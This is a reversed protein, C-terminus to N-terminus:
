VKENDLGLGLKQAFVSVAKSRISEVGYKATRQNLIFETETESLLQGHSVFGFKRTIFFGESLQDIMTEELPYLCWGGVGFITNLYRGYTGAHILKDGAETIFVDEKSIWYDKEQSEHQKLQLKRRDLYSMQRSKLLRSSSVISSTTFLSSSNGLVSAKTVAFDSEENEALDLDIENNRFPCRHAMALRNKIPAPLHPSNVFFKNDALILREGMVAVHLSRRSLGHLGTKLKM